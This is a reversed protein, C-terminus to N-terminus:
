WIYLLAIGTFAEVPGSPELLRLSGSKLTTLGVCLDGRGMEKPPQTSGMKRDSPNNWHFIGTVGHCISGAVNRSTGCHRLQMVAHEGTSCTFATWIEKTTTNIVVSVRPVKFYRSSVAHQIFQKSVTRLNHHHSQEYIGMLYGSWGRECSM